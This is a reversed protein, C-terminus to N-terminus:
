EPLKRYRAEIKVYVLVNMHTYLMRIHRNPLSLIDLNGPVKKALDTLVGGLNEGFEFGSM